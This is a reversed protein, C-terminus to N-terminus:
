AACAAIEHLRGWLRSKVIELNHNKEALRRARIAYEIRRAPDAMLTQIAQKVEDVGERTVVYGWGQDRAYVIPAADAPGYLLVPTGSAM